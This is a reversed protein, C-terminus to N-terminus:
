NGGFKKLNYLLEKKSPYSEIKILHNNVYTAPLMERGACYILMWVNKNAMFRDINIDYFYHNVKTGCDNLLKSLENFEKNEFNNSDDYITVESNTVDKSM